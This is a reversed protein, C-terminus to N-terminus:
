KTTSKLKSMAYPLCCKLPIWPLKGSEQPVFDDKSKKENHWSGIFAGYFSAQESHTNIERM